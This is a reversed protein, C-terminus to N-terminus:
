GDLGLLRNASQGVKAVEVIFGVSLPPDLVPQSTTGYSPFPEPRFQLGLPNGLSNGLACNAFGEAFNVFFCQSSAQQLGSLFL